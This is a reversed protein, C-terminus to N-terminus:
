YLRSEPQGQQAEHCTGGRRIVSMGRLRVVDGRPRYSSSNELSPGDCIPVSPRVRSVVLIVTQPPGRARLGVDVQVARAAVPVVHRRGDVDNSVIRSREREGHSDIYGWASTM